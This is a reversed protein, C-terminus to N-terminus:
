VDELSLCSKWWVVVGGGVCGVFSNQLGLVRILCVIFSPFLFSLYFRRATEDDFAEKSNTFVPPTYRYEYSIRLSFTRLLFLFVMDLLFLHNPPLRVWTPGRLM